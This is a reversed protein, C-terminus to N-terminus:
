SCFITTISSIVNDIVPHYNLEFVEFGIFYARFEFLFHILTLKKYWYPPHHFLYFEGHPQKTSLRGCISVNCLLCAGIVGM